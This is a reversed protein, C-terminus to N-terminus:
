DKFFKMDFEGEEATLSKVISLKNGYQVAINWLKYLDNFRVANYSDVVKGNETNTDTVCLKFSPDKKSLYEVARHFAYEPTNQALAAEFTLPEGVCYANNDFNFQHGESVRKWNYDDATYKTNWFVPTGNQYSNIIDLQEKIDM